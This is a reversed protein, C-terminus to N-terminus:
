TCTRSHLSSQLPKYHCCSDCHLRNVATYILYNINKMEGDLVVGISLRLGHFTYVNHNWKNQTHDTWSPHLRSCAWVRGYGSLWNRVFGGRAVSGPLAYRGNRSYLMVHTYAQIEFLTVLIIWSLVSLCRFHPHKLSISMKTLSATADTNSWRGLRM